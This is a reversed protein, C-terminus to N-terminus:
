LLSTGQFSFPHLESKPVSTDIPQDHPSTLFFIRTRPGM